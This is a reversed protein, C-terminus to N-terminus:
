LTRSELTEVGQARRVGYHTEQEGKQDGRRRHGPGKDDGFHTKNKSQFKKKFGELFSLFLHVSLFFPICMAPAPAPWRSAPQSPLMRGRGPLPRPLLRQGPGAPLSNHSLGLPLGARSAWVLGVLAGGSASPASMQLLSPAMTSNTPSPLCRSIPQLIAVTGSERVLTRCVAHCASVVRSHHPMCYAVPWRCAPVGM